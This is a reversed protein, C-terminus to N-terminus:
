ICLVKSEVRPKIKEEKLREDTMSVKRKQNRKRM